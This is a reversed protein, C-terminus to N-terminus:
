QGQWGGPPIVESAWAWSLNGAPGLSSRGGHMKKRLQDNFSITGVHGDVFSINGSGRNLKDDPANHYTAFCDRAEPSPTILLSTDDLGKTSLPATLGKRSLKRRDAGVSWSNEEAFFFVEGANRVESLRLVGGVRTSGLYGNMSYSNQPVIAVDRNHKRNDCGKSKAYRRFTPCTGNFGSVYSWMQGRYDESRTMTEGDISFFSDHWRCGIPHDESESASSYLWQKSDPFVGNNDKLYLQGAIGFQRMYSSCVIRTAKMRSRGLSPMLLAALFAIIALVCLLELITFGGAFSRASLKNPIKIQLDM